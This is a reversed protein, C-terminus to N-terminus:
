KKEPDDTDEDELDFEEGDEDEDEIDNSNDDVDCGEDAEDEDAGNLIERAKIPMLQSFYEDAKDKDGRIISDLGQRILEKKDM